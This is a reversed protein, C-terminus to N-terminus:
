KAGGKWEPAAQCRIVYRAHCGAFEGGHAETVTAIPVGLKRLSHVYASWRPAPETIPTCGAAGAERLRDIAWRVRGTVVIRFSAGMAPKIRYLTGAKNARATRSINRIGEASAHVPKGVGTAALLSGPNNKAVM